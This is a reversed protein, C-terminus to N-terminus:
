DWLSRFYKGFLEFGETIRANYAMHGVHDYSDNVFFADEWDDNLIQEFSWIMKDMIVSWEAAGAEWAKDDDEAYFDFSSQASNSTYQFGLMDGPAGHKVSNLQKLMPLVIAALTDDMSWVDYKDIHIDMTRKRRAHIWECITNLPTDALKKGIKRCTDESVGVHQLLDAIQYPGWWNLYPGINVKM